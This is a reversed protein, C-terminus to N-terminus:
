SAQHTTGSCSTTLLLSEGIAEVLALVKEEQLRQCMPQLGVRLGQSHDAPLANPEIDFVSGRGTVPFTCSPLDLANAVATYGFYRDTGKQSAAHPSVPLIVGDIARGSVTKAGMSSWYEMYSRKYEQLERCLKWFDETPLSGPDAQQYWEKLQDVPPEGSADIADRICKASTSEHACASQRGAARDGPDAPVINAMNRNGCAPHQNSESERFLDLYTAITTTSARSEIYAGAHTIALPIYELKHVLKKADARTADSFPVRTHLLQLADEEGMPEVKIVGRHGGIVNTAANTNGTAIQPKGAGGLEVLAVRPHSSAAERRESIQALIHERGVFLDDRAFPLAVDAPDVVVSPTVQQNGLEQRVFTKLVGAIARYDQDNRSSYRAMQMHNADISEVTELTRPLDLKSSFDDVVKETSGKMGTIGRSEQFSHIKMTREFVITKLEEHINDLVENNVELSELLRKNSDQLAMRALNSAIQGWGAYASGRHPTGLFIILRTRDRVKESRRIADKLIIGGLSHIVFALPKENDIERDLRVSLDRGHQPISNKNNAQLLGGIVDANYGYTSVCAQPIDAALYEEPWFVTTHSPSSSPPGASPGQEQEAGNSLSGATRQKFLSKLGKPKKTTSDSGNSASAPTAATALAAATCTNQPHGRLGHVFVISVIMYEPVRHLFLWEHKSNNWARQPAWIGCRHALRRINRYQAMEHGERIDIEMIVVDEHSIFASPERSAWDLHNQISQQTEPLCPDFSAHSQNRSLMGTHKCYQAQPGDDQVRFFVLPTEGFYPM